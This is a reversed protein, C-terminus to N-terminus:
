ALAQASAGPGYAEATDLCTIELDIARQVAQQFQAEHIKGYAGGIEWCGFGIASVQLATQEFPRYEM